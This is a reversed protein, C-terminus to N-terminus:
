DRTQWVLTGSVCGGSKFRQLVRLETLVPKQTKTCVEPVNGIVGAVLSATM